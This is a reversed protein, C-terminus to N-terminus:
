VRGLGDLEAAVEVARTLSVEDLWFVAELVFVL